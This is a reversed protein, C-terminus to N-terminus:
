GQLEQPIFPGDLQATQWRSYQQNQHQQAPLEHKPQSEYAKRRRQRILFWAIGALILVGAVAGVTIGAIAGGNLNSGSADSTNAAPLSTLPGAQSTSTSSATSATTTSPPTATPTNTPTTTPTTTTSLFDTSQYRVQISYANFGDDSDFTSTVRSTIGDSVQSVVLTVPASSSLQNNCGLTLHWPYRVSTQCTFNWQTPCCVLVTETITAATNASQCAATFGTPCRGPSYYQNGNGVYGNPYCSTQEVPGQILYYAGPQFTTFVKYINSDDACNSAIAFDTPLPGLNNGM